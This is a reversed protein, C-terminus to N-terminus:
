KEIKAMVQKFMAPDARLIKEGRKAALSVGSSGLHLFRGGQYGLGGAAAKCGTTLVDRRLVAIIFHLYGSTVRVASFCRKLGFAPPILMFNERM